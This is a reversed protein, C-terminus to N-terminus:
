RIKELQEEFYKKTLVSGNNKLREEDMVWGKIPFTTAIENVWKRFQVARESNVKFSVAIVM